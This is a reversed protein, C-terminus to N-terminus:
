EIIQRHVNWSVVLRAEDQSSELSLPDLDDRQDAVILQLSRSVQGVLVEGLEGVVARYPRRDDLREVAAPLVGEASTDVLEGVPSGSKAVM